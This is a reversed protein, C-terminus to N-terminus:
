KSIKMKDLGVVYIMMGVQIFILIQSFYKFIM